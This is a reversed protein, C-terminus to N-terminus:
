ILQTLVTLEGGEVVVVVEVKVVVVLKIIKERQRIVKILLINMKMM